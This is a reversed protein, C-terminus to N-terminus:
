GCGMEEALNIIDSLYVFEEEGVVFCNMKLREILNKIVEKCGDQYGKQYQQRDYELAKLLEEKDVNVGVGQVAKLIMSDKEKDFIATYQTSTQRIEIPSECM